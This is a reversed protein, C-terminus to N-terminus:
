ISIILALVLGMQKMVPNRQFRALCLGFVVGLLSALPGAANMMIEETKSPSSTLRLWGKDGGPGITEIWQDPHLPPPGGWFQVLGLFGWVPGRGFTEYVAVHGAEHSTQAVFNLLITLLLLQWFGVKRYDM